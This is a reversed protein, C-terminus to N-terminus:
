IAHPSTRALALSKTWRRSSGTTRAQTTSLGAQSTKSDQKWWTQRQKVSLSREFLAKSPEVSSITSLKTTEVKGKSILRPWQAVLRRWNAQKNTSNIRSLTHAKVWLFRVRPTLRMMSTKQAKRALSKSPEDKSVLKPIEGNRSKSLTQEVAVLGAKSPTSVGPSFAKIPELQKLDVMKQKKKPLTTTQQESLEFRDAAMNILSMRPAVVDEIKLNLMDKSCIHTILTFTM